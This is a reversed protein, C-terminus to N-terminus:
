HELNESLFNTLDLLSFRLRMIKNLRPTFRFQIFLQGGFFSNMKFKSFWSKSDVIPFKCPFAKQAFSQVSFREKQSYNKSGPFSVSCDLSIVLFLFRFVPIFLFPYFHLFSCSFICTNKGYAMKTNWINQCFSEIYLVWIPSIWCLFFSGRVKNLRPTFRFQIFLQGGFFQENQIQLIM